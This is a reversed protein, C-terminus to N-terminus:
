IHNGMLHFKATRKAWDNAAQKKDKGKSRVDRWTRKRKGPKTLGLEQAVSSGFGSINPLGIKSIMDGIGLNKQRPLNPSYNNDQIQTLSQVQKAFDNSFGAVNIGKGSRKSSFKKAPNTGSALLQPYWGTHITVGSYDKRAM